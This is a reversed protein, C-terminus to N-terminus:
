RASAAAARANRRCLCGRRGSRGGTRARKAATEDKRQGAATGDTRALSDHPSYKEITKVSKPPWNRSPSEGSRRREYISGIGAASEDTELFLRDSPTNRLADATKSSRFATEGFSLYYGAKLVQGALQKSGAFGHFVAPIDFPRLTPLMENYAKVCHLIVPLGRRRAIELQRVLWERQATRDVSVAYDLGIEGIAACPLTELQRLGQPDAKESDWPHIGASFLSGDSPVADTGLRISRLAAADPEKRHTHIDILPYM